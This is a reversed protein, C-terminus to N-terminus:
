AFAAPCATARSARHLTPRTAGYILRQAITEPLTASVLAEARTRERELELETRGLVYLAHFIVIANIAVALVMSQIGMSHLLRADTVVGQEPADNRCPATSGLPFSCDARGSSGFLDRHGVL